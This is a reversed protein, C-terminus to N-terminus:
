EPSTTTLVPPGLINPIARGLLVVAMKGDTVIEDGTANATKKPAAPRDVNAYAIATGAFLLDTQIWDRERDIHPDIRHSWKTGKRANSIAIDHTGAGVWVERGNYTSTQKWVRIHHRKAFTDLSKQFVLDPITGNVMLKSVPASQYDADRITAHVTKLASGVSLADAEYWGAEHFAAALEQRSGIFMVNTVDSLRNDATHTRLPAAHVLARLKQDEPVLPWGTWSEKRKLLSPRVVQVQLDTGKPFLVERRISLGYVTSVGRVAYGAIPNVVGVLSLAVSTKTNAHPQIIGLIENNRVTERSSDVDLVRAYLSSKTGDAHIINSFDLVLRPRSYKDAAKQAFLITGEVRTGPAVVLEGDGCAIDEGKKCLPYTVIGEIPDGIRSRDSYVAGSLRISLTQGPSLHAERIRGLNGTAPAVPKAMTDGGPEGFFRFSAVLFGSTAGSELLLTQLEVNPSYLLYDLPTNNYADERNVEVGKQILADAIREYVVIIKSKTSASSGFVAWHLASRGKRDVAKVDTGQAILQEAEALRELTPKEKTERTAEYLKQILPSSEALDIQIAAPALDDDLTEAADSETKTAQDQDQVAAPRQQLKTSAGTSQAVAFDGRLAPLVLLSIAISFLTPRFWVRM